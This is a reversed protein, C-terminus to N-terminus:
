SSRHLPLRCTSLKLAEKRTCVTFVANGHLGEVTSLKSVVTTTYTCSLSVLLEKIVVDFDDNDKSCQRIVSGFLGSSSTAWQHMAEAFGYEGATISM